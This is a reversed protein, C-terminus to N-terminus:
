ALPSCTIKSNCVFIVFSTQFSEQFSWWGHDFKFAEVKEKHSFINASIFFSKDFHSMKALGVLVPPPLGDDDPPSEKTRSKVKAINYQCSQSHNTM